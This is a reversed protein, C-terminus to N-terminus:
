ILTKQQKSKKNSKICSECFKKKSLNQLFKDSRYYIKEGIKVKEGCSYCLHEVRAKHPNMPGVGYKSM